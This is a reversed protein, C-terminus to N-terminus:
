KSSEDDDPRPALLNGPDTGRQEQHPAIMNASSRHERKTGLPDQVGGGMSQPHAKTDPDLEAGGGLAGAPHLPDGQTHTEPHRTM